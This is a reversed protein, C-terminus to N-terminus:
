NGYQFLQFRPIPSIFGMGNKNTKGSESEYKKKLEEIQAMMAENFLKQAASQQAKRNDNTKQIRKRHAKAGGRKRSAPM